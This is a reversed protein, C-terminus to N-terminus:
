LKKESRPFFRYPKNKLSLEAVRTSTRQYGWVTCYVFLPTNYHPSPFLFVRSKEHITADSKKAIAFKTRSLTEGDSQLTISFNNSALRLLLNWSSSFIENKEKVAGHYKKRCTKEEKELRVSVFDVIVIYIKQWKKHM